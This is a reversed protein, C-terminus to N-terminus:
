QNGAAATHPDLDAQFVLNEDQVLVITDQQDAVDGGGATAVEARRVAAAIGDRRGAVEGCKREHRTPHVHREALHVVGHEEDAGEVRDVPVCLHREPRGGVAAHPDRDVDGREEVRQYRGGARRYVDATSDAGIGLSRTTCWVGEGTSCSISSATTLPARVSSISSTSTIRRGARVAAATSTSCASPYRSPVGALM